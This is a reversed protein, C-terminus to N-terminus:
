ANKKLVLFYSHSIRAHRQKGARNPSPLRGGGGLVFLDKLRFGCAEAWVVVNIHTAHMKHNHIIDQCKVVLVGKHRLVRAAEAITGKYHAALEDYRWYGGFRSAMVMKGNGERGARVYTLFPPDFVVSGVTSDGLPLDMSCAQTVGGVQPDIDFRHRPTDSRGRWFSGNGYTVDVCFADAEIHLERIASLIEQQDSSTSRVVANM